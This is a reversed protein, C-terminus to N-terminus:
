WCYVKRSTCNVAARPVLSLHLPPNDGLQEGEHVAQFCAGMDDDHSGGVPGVPVVKTLDPDTFDSCGWGM